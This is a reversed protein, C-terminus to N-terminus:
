SQPQVTVSLDDQRNTVFVNNGESRAATAEEGTRTGGRDESAEREEVGDFANWAEGFHEEM